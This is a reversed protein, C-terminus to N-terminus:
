RELVIGMKASTREWINELQAAPLRPNVQDPGRWAGCASGQKFAFIGPALLVIALLGISSPELFPSSSSAIKISFAGESAGGSLRRLNSNSALRYGLEADVSLMADSFVDSPISFLKAGDVASSVCVDKSTVSDASIQVVVKELAVNVMRAGSIAERDPCSLSIIVGSSGANGDQSYGCLIKSFSSPARETIPVAFLAPGKALGGFAADANNLSTGSAAIANRRQQRFGGAIVSARFYISYRSFCQRTARTSQGRTANELAFCREVLV